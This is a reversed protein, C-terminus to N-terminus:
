GSGPFDRGPIKLSFTCMHLHEAQHIKSHTGGMVTHIVELEWFVREQRRRTPVGSELLLWLSTKDTKSSWILPAWGSRGKRQRRAKKAWCKGQSSWKGCQTLGCVHAWGSLRTQSQPGTSQLGGPEETWPAKWSLIGSHTATHILSCHAGKVHQM